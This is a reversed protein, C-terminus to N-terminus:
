SEEPVPLDITFTTGTGMKSAVRIHAGHEHIIGYSISLGIGTGHGVPKTTFFPDFIRKLTDDSIGPGDDAIVAQVSDGVRRTTVSLTGGGNAESMAQEANIIINLFVQQLQNSDALITPLDQQLDQKIELNSARMEYSRLEVTKELVDNLSTPTRESDHERSFALLNRLITAARLTEDHITQIHKKTKEDLNGARLLLEARGIAGGLPNNVEHAIGSALTGISVLKDAQLLQHQLRVRETVDMMTGIVEDNKLAGSLLLQRDNGHNTLADVELASVRGVERLRRTWEGHQSPDKFFSHLNSEVLLDVSDFELIDAMAPNAYLMSGDIRSYWMGVPSNEALLRNRRESEQLQILPLRMIGSDQPGPPPNVM